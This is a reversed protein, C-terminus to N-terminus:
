NLPIGELEKCDSHRLERFNNGEEADYFRGDM